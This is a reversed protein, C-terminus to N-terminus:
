TVDDWNSPQVDQRSEGAQDQQPVEMGGSQHERSASVPQGQPQAAGRAYDRLNPKRVTDVTERIDRKTDEFSTLLSDDDDLLTKKILGRAGMQRVSNLEQLPKSLEKFDEGFEGDLQAKADNIANRVALRIARFERILAPMREPGIILFGIVLVALIEGFGLSSFM